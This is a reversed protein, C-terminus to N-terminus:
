RLNIIDKIPKVIKKKKLNLNINKIDNKSSIIREVILFNEFFLIINKNKKYYDIFDVIHFEDYFVFSICDFSEIKNKSYHVKSSKYVEIGENKLHFKILRYIYNKNDHVIVKKM